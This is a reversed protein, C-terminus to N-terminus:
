AAPQTIEALGLEENPGKVALERVQGIGRVYYKRDRAGPELPTWEDTVLADPFSGYPVTVPQSLDIVRYWDEAHGRLYEQRLRKGVVPAAEMVVGAQAHKRGARWTGGTNVVKGQRDLEATDEGFYWVTGQADQAYYDLTRERVRGAVSLEDRVVVTDVGLITTSGSTVTVVDRAPKGHWTGTYIRTTGPVLPFWPNDITTTFQAPDIGSVSRDV